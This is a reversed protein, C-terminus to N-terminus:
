FKKKFFIKAVSLDYFKSHRNKMKKPRIKLNGIGCEPSNTSFQVDCQRSCVLIPVGNKENLFISWDFDLMKWKLFLFNGPMKRFKKPRAWANQKRATHMNQMRANMNKSRCQSALSTDSHICSFNLSIAHMQM